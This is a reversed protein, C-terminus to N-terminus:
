STSCAAAVLPRLPHQPARDQQVDGVVRRAAPLVVALLHPPAGVVARPRAPRPVRRAPRSQARRRRRRHARRRRHHVAVARDGVTEISTVETGYRFEVGHKEAAAAMAAPVAHMGGKPFFVGAVSDMYAIVAYIALADYPSLGAYMAQFRSSASPARTRSTSASRPRWSASAASRSSGRSTPPSSTSPPTSTATSSTAEDRLPLAELRLRRLPPLRRGGHPGIVREIEDAMQTSTPTSTSSPATPTSRRPVAPRGARPDLWDAMEEGLCDFADAILDPM